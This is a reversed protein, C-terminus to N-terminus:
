PWVPTAHTAVLLKFVNDQRLFDTATVTEEEVTVTEYPRKDRRHAAPARRKASGAGRQRGRVSSAPDRDQRRPRDDRCRSSARILGYVGLGLMFVGM